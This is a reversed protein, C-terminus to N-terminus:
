VRLNHRRTLRIRIVLCLEQVFPLLPLENETIFSWATPNRYRLVDESFDQTRPVIHLNRSERTLGSFHQSQHAGPQSIKRFGSIGRGFLYEYVQRIWNRFDAILMRRDGIQFMRKCQANAIVNDDPDSKGQYGSPTLNNSNSLAFPHKLNTIPSHQNSIEPVPDTLYIFAERRSLCEPAIEQLACVRFRRAV